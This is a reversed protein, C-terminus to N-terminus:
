SKPPKEEDNRKRGPIRRAVGFRQLEPSSKGYQSELYAIVSAALNRAGAESAKLRESITHLRAKAKEQEDDLSTLDSIASNVKGLYEKQKTDSEAGEKLGASLQNLASILDAFSKGVRLAM